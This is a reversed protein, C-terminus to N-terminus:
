CIDLYTGFLKDIFSHFLGTGFNHKPRIHHIDHDTSRIMLLKDLITFQYGSHIYAGLWNTIIAYIWVIMLHSGLLIPPLAPPIIFLVIEIPHLYHNVISFSNYKYNHHHKHIWYLRKTHVLRHLGYFFLESLISILFYHCFGDFFSPLISSMNYPNWHLYKLLSIGFYSIPILGLFVIPIFVGLAHYIEKTTPYIRSPKNSYVIRYKKLCDLQLLDLMTFLIIPFESILLVMITFYLIDWQNYNIILYDWIFQFM